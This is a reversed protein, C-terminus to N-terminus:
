IFNIFLFMSWVWIRRVRRCYLLAICTRCVWNQPTDTQCFTLFLWDNFTRHIYFGQSCINKICWGYRFALVETEICCETGFCKHIYLACIYRLMSTIHQKCSPNKRCWKTYQVAHQIHAIAWKITYGLLNKAYLTVFVCGGAGVCVCVCVDCVRASM